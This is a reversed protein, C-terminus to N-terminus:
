VGKVFSMAQDDNQFFTDTTPSGQPSTNLFDACSTFAMAVVSLAIIFYKKM